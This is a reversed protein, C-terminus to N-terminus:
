RRIEFADAWKEEVECNFHEVSVVGIIDEDYNPWDVIGIVKFTEGPPIKVFDNGEDDWHGTYIDKVNYVLLGIFQSCHNGAKLAENLNLRNIM